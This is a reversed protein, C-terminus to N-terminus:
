NPISGVVLPLPFTPDPPKCPYRCGLRWFLVGDVVNNVAGELMHDFRYVLTTSDGVYRVSEGCYGSVSCSHNRKWQEGSHLFAFGRREYKLLGDRVSSTNCYRHSNLLGCLLDTMLPYTSVVCNSTIFNMVLTSHFHFIPTVSSTSSSEIVNIVRRMARHLYFAICVIGPSPVTLVCRLIATKYLPKGAEQEVHYETYQPPDRSTHYVLQYSASETLFRHIPELSGEPVYIDLDHPIFLRPTIIALAASGSIVSRTDRLLALTPECPLEFSTLCHHVRGRVHARCTTASTGNTNGLSVLTPISMYAM